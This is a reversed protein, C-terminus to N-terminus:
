LLEIRVLIAGPSRTEDSAARAAARGVKKM